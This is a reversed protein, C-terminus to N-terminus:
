RCGRLCSSSAAMQLTNLNHLYLHNTTWGGSTPLLAICHRWNLATGLSSLTWRCVSAAKEGWAIGRRRQRVKKEAEDAESQPSISCHRKVEIDTTVQQQQESKNDNTWRQQQDRVIFCSAMDLLRSCPSCCFSALKLSLSVRSSRNVSTTNTLQLLLEVLPLWVVVLLLILWTEEEASSRQCLKPASKKM